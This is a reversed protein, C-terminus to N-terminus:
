DQDAQLDVAKLCTHTAGQPSLESAYLAFSTMRVQPWAWAGAREVLGPWDEHADAQRVRALTLHPTFSRQEPRLGLPALAAWVAASLESCHEAGEGVGTWLVRPHRLNPFMGAGQAQFAFAPRGLSGLAEAAAEVRQSDLEDLFALTLHWSGPKTWALRSRVAPRLEAALAALGDQYSGPMALAVFCRAM